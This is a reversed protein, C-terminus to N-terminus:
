SFAESCQKIYDPEFEIFNVDKLKLCFLSHTALIIQLDSFQTLIDNFLKKQLVVGLAREPEDLLITQPGTRGLGKWYALEKKCDNYIYGSPIDGESLDPVERIM